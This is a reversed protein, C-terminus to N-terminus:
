CPWARVFADALLDFAPRHTKSALPDQLAHMAVDLVQQLTVEKPRCTRQAPWATAELADAVGTIFGLCLEVNATCEEQLEDVHMFNLRSEASASVCGLLFAVPAVLVLGRTVM